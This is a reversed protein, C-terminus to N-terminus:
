YDNIPIYGLVSGIPPILIGIIRLVEAKYPSAFDCQILQVVNMIWGLLALGYLLLVGKFSNM